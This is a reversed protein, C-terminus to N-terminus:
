MKSGSMKKDGSMKPSMKDMNKGMKAADTYGAPAKSMKVLKHGMADKYGMKKAMDPSTYVKCKSCAYVPGAMKSDMKGSSMAAKKDSSMKGSDMKGGTTTQASAAAAFAVSLVLAASAGVARRLNM